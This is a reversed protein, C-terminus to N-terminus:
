RIPGLDETTEGAIWLLDARLGPDASATELLGSLEAKSMWHRTRSPLPVLQAVALGNVTIIVDEGDQVRRLVGATDNRLERSAITGMVPTYVDTASM